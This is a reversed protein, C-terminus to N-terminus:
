RRERALAETVDRAASTLGKLIPESVAEPFARPLSSRVIEVAAPVRDVLDEIIRRGAEPLACRRGTELWHRVQIERWRYHRNKGLM